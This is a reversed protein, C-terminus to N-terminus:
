EKVSNDVPYKTGVRCATNGAHHINWKDRHLNDRWYRYRPFWCEKNALSQIDVDTKCHFSSVHINIDGLRYDPFIYEHIRKFQVNILTGSITQWKWTTLKHSTPCDLDKVIWDRGTKSVSYM